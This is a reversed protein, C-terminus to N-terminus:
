NRTNLTITIGFITICKNKKDGQWVNRISFIKELLSLKKASHNTVIEMIKDQLVKDDTLANLLSQKVETDTQGIADGMTHILSTHNKRYMYLVEQINAINLNSKLCEVFFNYDESTKLQENYHLDCNKINSLRLMITGQSTMCGGLFDVYKPYPINKLIRGNPFVKLWTGVISITPHKELFYVEKNLREPLSIDDSDQFAIYEGTSLDMLKNRTKSVGYNEENKYFRIRSDNYSSVIKEIDNKSGDDVIVLEFDTFTQNLISEISERLYEEKTNYVPMLVSIKPM